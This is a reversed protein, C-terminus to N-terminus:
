SPRRRRARASRTTPTASRGDAVRNLAAAQSSTRPGSNSCRSGRPSRARWCTPCGRSPTTPPRRASRPRRRDARRLAACGASSRRAARRGSRACSRTSPPALRRERSTRSAGYPRQAVTRSARHRVRGRAAVGRGPDAGPRAPHAAERDREAHPDRRRDREGAPRHPLARAPARERRDRPGHGAAPRRHAPPRRRGTAGGLPTACRRAPAQVISAITPTAPQMPSSRPGGCLIRGRAVLIMTPPANGAEARRRMCRLPSLLM